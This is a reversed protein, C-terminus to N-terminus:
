FIEALMGVNDAHTPAQFNGPKILDPLGFANPRTPNIGGVKTMNAELVRNWAETADVQFADLTGLAVVIIDVLGDVLDDANKAEYSETLEEKIFDLRFKLLAKLKEPDGSLADFAKTMGYHYHMDAIDHAYDRSM